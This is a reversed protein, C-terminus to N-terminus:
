DASTRLEGQRQSMWTALQDWEVSLQFPGGDDVRGFKMKGRCTLKRAVNESMITGTKGHPSEECSYMSELLGVGECEKAAEM